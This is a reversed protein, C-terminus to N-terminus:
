TFLPIRVQQLTLCVTKASQVPNILKSKNITEKIIDGFDKFHKLFLFFFFDVKILERNLEFIVVSQM